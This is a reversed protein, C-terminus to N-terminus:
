ATHVESSTLLGRPHLDTTTSRSARRRAAARRALSTLTPPEVLLQSVVLRVILLLQGVGVRDTSTFLPGPFFGPAEGNVVGALESSTCTSASRRSRSRM